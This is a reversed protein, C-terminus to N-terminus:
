KKAGQYSIRWVVGGTDDAILLSGDKGIALGAPRGWVQARGEGSAWFGTAFNEYATAPIGASDFGIRVIKYGRPRAANWSGHFAVFGDGHFEEPFMQGTYFALGLPASHSQFLLDPTKARAVLDPRRAGYEPDAYTGAYAYPWGFFDGKEVATLYDPVLEEGYGDRENVTVYLSKSRPHFEIGVPNRLGSAFTSLQNTALDLRQVSARPLDEEGINGRSGIAIFLSKGDPSLALNRTSHGGGNGLAGKATVRAKTRDRVSQGPLYPYRWLTTPDSVYLWGNAIELGHPSVIEDSFVSAFEAVGDGDRDRLMWVQDNWTEALIVDGNAAVKLWRPGKFGARFINAQFGSPLRLTADKPRPIRKPSRGASPTAHPKPLDQPLIQFVKGVKQEDNSHAFSINFLSIALAFFIWDFRM